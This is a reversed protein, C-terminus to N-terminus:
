GDGTERIGKWGVCQVCLLICGDKKYVVYLIFYEVATEEERRLDRLAWKVAWESARRVRM